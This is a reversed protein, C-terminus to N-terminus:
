ASARQRSIYLWALLGFGTIISANIAIILRADGYGKILSTVLIFFQMLIALGYTKSFTIKKIAVLIGGIILVAINLLHLLGVEIDDSHSTLLAITFVAYGISSAVFLFWNLPTPQTGKISWKKIDFTQGSRLCHHLIIGVL